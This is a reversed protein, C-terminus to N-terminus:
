TFKIYIRAGSSCIFTPTKPEPSTAFDSAPPNM